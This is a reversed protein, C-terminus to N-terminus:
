AVRADLLREIAEALGRVVHAACSRWLLALGFRAAGGIAQLFSGAEKAAHVLLL